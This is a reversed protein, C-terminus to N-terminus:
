LHHAIKPFLFLIFLNTVKYLYGFGDEIYLIKKPKNQKMLAVSHCASVSEGLFCEVCFSVKTPNLAQNYFLGM